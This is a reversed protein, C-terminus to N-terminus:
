GDIRHAHAIAVPTYVEWGGDSPTTSSTDAFPVDDMLVEFMSNVLSITRLHTSAIHLRLEEDLDKPSICHSFPLRM